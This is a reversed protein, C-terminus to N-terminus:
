EPWKMQVSSHPTRSLPLLAQSSPPGTALGPGSLLVPTGEGDDLGLPGMACSKPRAAAKQALCPLGWVGLSVWVQADEGRRTGGLRPGRLEASGAWGPLTAGRRVWHLSGTPVQLDGTRADGGAERRWCQLKLGALSGTGCGSSGKAGPLGM